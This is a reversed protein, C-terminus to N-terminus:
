FKSWFYKQEFYKFILNVNEKGTSTAFGMFIDAGFPIRDVAIPLNGTVFGDFQINCIVVFHKM